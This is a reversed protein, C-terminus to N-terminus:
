DKLTRLLVIITKAKLKDPIEKGIFNYYDRSLLIVGLEETDILRRSISYSLVQERHKKAQRL